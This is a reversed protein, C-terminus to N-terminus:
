ESIERGYCSELCEHNLCVGKNNKKQNNSDASKRKKEDVLLTFVENRWKNEGMRKEKRRHNARMLSDSRSTMIRVEQVVGIGKSEPLVLVNNRLYVQKMFWKSFPFTISETQLEKLNVTEFEM